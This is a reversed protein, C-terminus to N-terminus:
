NNSLFYQLQKNLHSLATASYTDPQNLYQIFLFDLNNM